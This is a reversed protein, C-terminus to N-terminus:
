IITMGARVDPDDPCASATMYYEGAHPHQLFLANADGTKVDTVKFCSGAPLLIENESQEYVSRVRVGPVNTFIMICRTATVFNVALETATSLFALAIVEQDAVLGLCPSGRFLTKGGDFKRIAETESRIETALADIYQYIPLPVLEGLHFSNRALCNLVVYSVGGGIGNGTYAWQAKWCDHATSGGLLIGQLDSYWAPDNFHTNMAILNTNLVNMHKACTGKNVRLGVTSKCTADQEELEICMEVTVLRAEEASTLERVVLPEYADKAKIAVYNIPCVPKVIRAASRLTMPPPPPPIVAVPAKLCVDADIIRDCEQQLFIGAGKKQCCVSPECEAAGSLSARMYGRKKCEDHYNEVKSDMHECTGFGDICDTEELAYHHAYHHAPQFKELHDAAELLADIRPHSLALSAVLLFM